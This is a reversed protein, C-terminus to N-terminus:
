EASSNVNMLSRRQRQASEEKRALWLCLTHFGTSYVSDLAGFTGTEAIDMWIGWWGIRFGPTPAEEEESEEGEQQFLAWGYTNHVWQKVGHWYMASHLLLEPKAKRYKRAAREVEMRDTIPKRQGKKKPRLLLATLHRLADLDLSNAWRGFYEDALTYELATLDYAHDEPMYRAFFGRGFKRRIPQTIPAGPRLWPTGISLTQIDEETLAQWQWPTFNLLRRLARLKGEGSPWRCLCRLLLWSDRGATEWSGPLAQPQGNITLRLEM